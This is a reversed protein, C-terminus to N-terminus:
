MDLVLNVAGKLVLRAVLDDRAVLLLQEVLSSVHLGQLRRQLRQVVFDDVIEHQLSCSEADVDLVQLHPDHRHRAAPLEILATCAGALPDDLITL